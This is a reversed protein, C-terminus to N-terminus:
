EWPFINNFVKQMGFIPILKKVGDIKLSEPALPYDNHDDHLESPYELDVELVCGVGEQELFEKWKELEDKRTWKFGDVPLPELMATPYLSNADFYMLFNSPKTEDFDKMYKNNAKAFRHFATSVRGRIQTEFFQHMDVDKLLEGTMKLMSDWAFAPATLYWCPDLGYSELCPKRFNEFVDALLNTDSKLYLDHYEGMNTMNLEKWVKKAHQFDDESINEGNLKSFFDDKGPLVEKFKEFSDMWDYPYVGKRSLLDAKEGFIRKTQVLQDKEFNGILADLPSAMFKYSDLFKIEHKIVKGKENKGVPIELSLSIYREETNPICKIKGQKKNM